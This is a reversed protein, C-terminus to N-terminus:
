FGNKGQVWILNVLPATMLAFIGAPLWAIMFLLCIAAHRKRKVSWFPLVGLMWGMILGILCYCFALQVSYTIM